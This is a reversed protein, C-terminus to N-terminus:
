IWRRVRNKFELYPKGFTEELMNEEASIFITQILWIFVPIPLFCTLSGLLLAVGALIFVMGLYMPNRSFVYMGGTVLHSPEQFPRITTDARSFLHGSWAVIILGIDLPLIGTYNWPTELLRIVPFFYHLLVMVTITLFLYVPPLIKRKM